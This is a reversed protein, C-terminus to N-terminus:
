LESRIARFKGNPEHPIEDVHEVDITVGDGLARGVRDRIEDVLAPPVAGAKPQLKVTLRDLSRQVFQYGGVAAAVDARSWLTEDILQPWFVPSGDPRRVVDLRRGQMAALRMGARGSPASDDALTVVDGTAYRLFPGCGSDLATVVVDGTEGPQAPRGDVLVELVVRPDVVRHAQEGALKFAVTPCEAAGYLDHLRAGFVAELRARDTPVVLEATSLLHRVSTVATGSRELLDAFRVLAARNGYIVDPATERLTALQVEDSNRYGMQVIRFRPNSRPRRIGDGHFTELVTGGRQGAASYIFTRVAATRADLMEEVEFLFSQASTGSTGRTVTRGCGPRVLEHRPADLLDAKRLVPLGALDDISGVAAPDIGADRLRAAHFPVRTADLCLRRLLDARLAEMRDHDDWPASELFRLYSVHARRHRLMGLVRDALRV